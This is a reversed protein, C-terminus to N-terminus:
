DAKLEIPIWHKLNTIQRFLFNVTKGQTLRGPFANPFLYKLTRIKVNQQYPPARNQRPVRIKPSFINSSM